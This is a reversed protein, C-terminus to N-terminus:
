HKQPKPAGLGYYAAAPDVPAADITTAGDGGNGGGTAAPQAPPVPEGNTPNMVNVGSQARVAPVETLGLEQATFAVLGGSKCLLEVINQRTQLELMRMLTEVIRPDAKELMDALDELDDKAYSMPGREGLGGAGTSSVTEYSFIAEYIKIGLPMGTPHTPDAPFEIDQLQRLVRAEIENQKAFVEQDEYEGIANDFLNEIRGSLAAGFAQMQTPIQIRDIDLQFAVKTKIRLQRKDSTRSLFPRPTCMNVRLSIEGTRRTVLSREFYEAGSADTTMFTIDPAHKDHLVKISPDWLTIPARLAGYFDGGKTTIFTAHAGADYTRAARYVLFILLAALLVAIIIAVIEM